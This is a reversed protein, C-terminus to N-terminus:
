FFLIFCAYSYFKNLLIKAIKKDYNMFEFAFLNSEVFVNRIFHIEANSLLSFTKLCCWFGLNIELEKLIITDIQKRVNSTLILIYVCLRVVFFLCVLIRQLVSNTNLRCIEHLLAVRNNLMAMTRSCRSVTKQSCWNNVIVVVRFSRM